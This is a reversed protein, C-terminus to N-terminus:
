AGQEKPWCVSCAYVKVVETEGPKGIRPRTHDRVYVPHDDDGCMRAGDAPGTRAWWVGQRRVATV